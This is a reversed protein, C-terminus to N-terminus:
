RKTAHRRERPIENDDAKLHECDDGKLHECGCCSGVNARFWIAGEPMIRNYRGTPGVLPPQWASVFVGLCESLVLLATESPENSRKIGVNCAVNKPRDDDAHPHDERYHHEATELPM